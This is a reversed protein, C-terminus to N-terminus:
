ASSPMRSQRKDRPSPSTYLLCTISATRGMAEAITTKGDLLSVLTYEALGLRFFKSSIADEIVYCTEGAYTQVSILLDDRVKPMMGMVEFAVHTEVDHPTIQNAPDNMPISQFSVGDSLKTLRLAIDPENKETGNM